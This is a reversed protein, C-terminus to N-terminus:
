PTEKDPVDALAAVLANHGCNCPYTVCTDNHGHSLRAGIAAKLQQM